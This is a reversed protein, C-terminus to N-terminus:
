RKEGKKKAGRSASAPASAPAAPKVATRTATRLRLGLKVLEAEQLKTEGVSLKGSALTFPQAAAPVLKGAQTSVLLTLQRTAGIAEVQAPQLVFAYYGADDVEVPAVNAAAAGKEDVLTVTVRGASKSSEDTIRGQLLTETKTVPPTRIAAIQAEVELLAGRQAMLDGAARLGTARADKGDGAELRKAEALALVRAALLTERAVALWEGRHAQVLEFLNEVDGKFSASGRNIILAM